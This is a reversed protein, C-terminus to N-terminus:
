DKIYNEAKTLYDDTWRIQQQISEMSKFKNEKLRRIHDVAYGLYRMSESIKQYEVITRAFLIGRVIDHIAEVRDSFQRVTERNDWLAAAAAAREAKIKRVRQCYAERQDSVIYGSKDVDKWGPHRATRDIIQQRHNEKNREQIVLWYHLNNSKRITEFDSKRYETEIQYTYSVGKYGRINDRYVNFGDTDVEAIFLRERRWSYNDFPNKYLLFVNYEEHAATTLSKIEKCISKFTFNGTYETVSVPQPWDINSMDHLAKCVMSNEALLATLAKNKEM